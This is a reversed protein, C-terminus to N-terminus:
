KSRAERRLKMILERTEKRSPHSIAGVPCVDQCGKCFVICNNPRVVVLRKKGEEEEELEYVGLKCYTMCKGCSVCKEYNVTPGWPIKERPIGHVTKENM